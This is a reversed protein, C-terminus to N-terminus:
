VPVTTNHGLILFNVTLTVNIGTFDAITTDPFDHRFASGGPPNITVRLDKVLDLPPFDGVHLLYTFDPDFLGDNIQGVMLVNNETTQAFWIRGEAVLADTKVFDVYTVDGPARRYIPTAYTFCTSILSFVVFITVITTKQIM